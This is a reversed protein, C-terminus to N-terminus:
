RDKEGRSKFSINQQIYFELDLTREKWYKLCIIDAGEPRTNESSCTAAPVLAGRCVVDHRARAEEKKEKDKIKLLKM